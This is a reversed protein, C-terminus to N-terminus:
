LRQNIGAMKTAEYKLSKHDTFINCHTVMLYHRWIKLAHIVAALELDHTPYNLEDPRLARSAYAIVRNDQMLVCGLGPGSADCYVDYSKSNDPQVLVPSTTLHARLTHFAEDCKADWKFRVDKKLLETKPKAIRSFDPIFRRYYGALGLFSRIQHVSTPPKWDMVEQVKSPDVSIGESFITHGLFKVTNLWFECKSFKAYLQHDRLRQLVIRLHEEHEEENKSYILIDDIFVVVFKDLEPMFVSNMLYMFYAPANTLGFSMVLFEYLGYRTSFAIKPIDCPRIKIQHYGSRLDIKSFIKAGALQDFLVGIRPLSYKNKITVANLPRYDVCLRLSDDKKKVFLTPCGWPSASPRIVGKDLLEKLQIKLEALEQPPMRYPRKSIPATGPQLEIVFEIDRHLPMGPLDDPFVDAYERVAPIDELCIDKMAYACSNVHESHPLYLVSHGHTPSNIEVARSSIDLLVGHRKMWDMGLIIDMGELPLLILTTPINRSGMKLPANNVIQNSAVKGSPTSIMFSGKTHCFILGVRAGFKSSIFNHSAGSDFLIVAPQHNISFTGSMIPAGKPLEALNTFNLRGQRFQITQKKGKNQDNRRSAQGQNQGEQPCMKAFHNPSGCKFCRNNNDPRTPQQFNPRPGTPQQQPPPAYRTQQQQQPPRIVWRGPQPAKQSPAAPANQEIRYRPASASSPGTPAKHKKETRHASILDDQTIGLNVLENFSDACVLNLREQLKTSLGRRFHERKKADTDAHHGAYQCLHNFAQAYQLVTRTGQTLALFENLKRDLLGAPIHHARFAIKFENWNVVHDAPLMGHYHDWWMRALGRLQQAAYRTKNAESCPTTL